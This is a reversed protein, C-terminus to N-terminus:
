YQYDPLSHNQGHLAGNLQMASFLLMRQNMYEFVMAFSRAQQDREIDKAFQESLPQHEEKVETATTGEEKKIQREAANSKPVRRHKKLLMKQHHSRCQLANRTVIAASMKKFARLGKSSANILEPHEV